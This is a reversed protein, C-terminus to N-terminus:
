RSRKTSLHSSSASVVKEHWEARLARWLAPSRSNRGSPAPEWSISPFFSTEEMERCSERTGLLTTVMSKKMHLATTLDRVVSKYVASPSFFRQQRDKEADSIEQPRADDWTYSLHVLARGLHVLVEALGACTWRDDMAEGVPLLAELTTTFDDTANTDSVNISGEKSLKQWMFAFSDMDSELYAGRYPEESFSLTDNFVLAGAVAVIKDLDAEREAPEPRTKYAVNM